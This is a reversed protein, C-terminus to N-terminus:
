INRPPPPPPQITPDAIRYGMPLYISGHRTQWSCTPAMESASRSAMNTFTLVRRAPQGMEAGSPGPQQLQQMIEAAQEYGGAFVRYAAAADQRPLVPMSESSSSAAAAGAALTADSDEVVEKIPTPVGRPPVRAPGLIKEEIEPDPLYPSSSLISVIKGSTFVAHGPNDSHAAYSLQDAHEKTMCPTGPKVMHDPAKSLDPCGRMQLHNRMDICFFSGAGCLACRLRMVRLHAVMHRRGDRINPVNVHCYMCEYYGKGPTLTDQHLRVILGSFFISQQHESLFVPVKTLDSRKTGDNVPVIMIVEELDALQDLNQKRKGSSGNTEMAQRREMVVKGAKPTFLIPEHKKDMKIVNPEKKEPTKERKKVLTVLPLVKEKKKRKKKEEKSTGADESEDATSQDLNQSSTDGEGGDMMWSPRKRQRSPRAANSSSPMESSARQEMIEIDKKRIYQRKVKQMPAVSETRKPRALIPTIAMTFQDEPSKKPRGRKKMLSESRIVPTATFRSSEETTKELTPEKPRMIVNCVIDLMDEMCGQITNSDPKITGEERKEDEKKEAEKEGGDNEDKITSPRKKIFASLPMDDEDEQDSSSLSLGLAILANLRAPDGCGASNGSGGPQRDRTEEPKMLPPVTKSPRSGRRRASRSRRIGREEEEEEEESEEKENLAE